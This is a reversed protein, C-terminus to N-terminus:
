DHEYYEVSFGEKTATVTAHDGFNKLAVREFHASAWKGMADELGKPIEVTLDGNKVYYGLSWSDYYGDDYDGGDDVGDLKVMLEGVSFECPEGDNFYPTYQRWRISDVGPIALVDDIVSLFQEASWQDYEAKRTEQVDGQIPRDIDFETENEDKLIAM